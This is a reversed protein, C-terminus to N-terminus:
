LSFCREGATAFSRNRAALHFSGCDLAYDDDGGGGGRAAAAVAAPPHRSHGAPDAQCM